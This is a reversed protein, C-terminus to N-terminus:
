LQIFRSIMYRSTLILVFGSVKIIKVWVLVPTPSPPNVFAKGKGKNRFGVM